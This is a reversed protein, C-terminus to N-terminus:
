ACRPPPPVLPPAARVPAIPAGGLTGGYVLKGNYFMLYMPLTQINYRKKLFSSEAMDYKILVYPCPKDPDQYEAELKREQLRM